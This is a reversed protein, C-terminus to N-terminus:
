LTASRQCSRIVQELYQKVNAHFLPRFHEPKTSIVAIPTRSIQCTKQCTKSMDDGTMEFIVLCLSLYKASYWGNRFNSFSVFLLLDSKWLEYGPPRLNM